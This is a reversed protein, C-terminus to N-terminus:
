SKGVKKRRYMDFPVGVIASIALAPLVFIISFLLDLEWSKWSGLAPSIFIYVSMLGALAITSLVLGREYKRALYHVLASVIIGVSLFILLWENDSLPPRGISLKHVGAPDFVQIRYNNTDAVIINGSSDVAVGRPYGFQGNRRGRRGFTLKHEGASNFVQVRSNGSDAVIINDSNDVAVGHPYDFQGNRRGRRGFTLKHVGASDFVQIRYNGSDAVIINDSSDVAVGDPSDFQGDEAGPSGFSLKQVGESNFVQIGNVVSNAVIIDDSSDVAVGTPFSFEIFGGRQELWKKHKIYEEKARKKYEEPLEELTPVGINVLQRVGPSRFTLKHVGASNFVQIRKNHTDAVIINGSSDVAVGNPMNFQGNASGPSGIRMLEVGAPSFKAVQNSDEYVAYINGSSDVAVDFPNRDLKKARVSVPYIIWIFSFAIVLVMFVKLDAGRFLFPMARSKHISTSSGSRSNQGEGM